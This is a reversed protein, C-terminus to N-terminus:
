NALKTALNINLQKPPLFLIKKWTLSLSNKIWTVLLCKLFNELFFNNAKTAPSKTKQWDGAELVM